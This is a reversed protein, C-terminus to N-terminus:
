SAAAFLLARPLRRVSAMSSQPQMACRLLYVLHLLAAPVQFVPMWATIWKRYAAEAQARQESGDLRKLARARLLEGKPTQPADRAAAEYDPQTRSMGAYEVGKYAARARELAVKAAEQM